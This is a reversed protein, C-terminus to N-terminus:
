LINAERHAHLDLGNSPARHSNARECRTEIASAVNGGLRPQALGGPILSCPANIIWSRVSVIFGADRYDTVIRAWREYAAKFRRWHIGDAMALDRLCGSTSALTKEKDQAGSNSFIFVSLVGVLIRILTIASFATTRCVRVATEIVM